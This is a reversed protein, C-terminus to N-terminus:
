PRTKVRDLAKALAPDGAGILFSFKLRLYVSGLDSLAM